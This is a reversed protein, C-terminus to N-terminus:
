YLIFVYNDAKITTAESVKLSMLSKNGLSILPRNSESFLCSFMQIWFKQQGGFDSQDKVRQEEGVILFSCLIRHQGVTLSLEPIHGDVSLRRQFPLGEAEVKNEDVLEKLSKFLFLVESLSWLPDEHQITVHYVSGFQDVTSSSMLNFRCGTDILVNVDHGLCQLCLPCLPGDPGRSSISM